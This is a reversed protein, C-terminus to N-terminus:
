NKKLYIGEQEIYQWVATPLMNHALPEGKKILERIVTGSIDSPNITHLLISGAPTEHIAQPNSTEHQKFFDKLKQNLPALYGPRNVIILHCYNLIDQWQKWQDFATFADMGIILALPSIPLEERLAKLTDIMFSPEARQIEHLDLIFHPHDKLALQLMTLRQQVSAEPAIRHVPQYSPLFRVEKLNLDQLLETAIHIHGLHIPDFTGGLIGICKALM